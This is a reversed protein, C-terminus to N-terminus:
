ESDKGLLGGGAPMKSSAEGSIRSVSTNKAFGRPYGSSLLVPQALTFLLIRNGWCQMADDHVIIGLRRVINKETRPYARDEEESGGPKLFDNTLRTLLLLPM